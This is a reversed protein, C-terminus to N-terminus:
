RSRLHHPMCQTCVRRLHARVRACRKSALVVDRPTCHAAHALDEITAFPGQQALLQDRLAIVRDRVLVNIHVALFPHQQEITRWNRVSVGVAALAAAQSPFAGRLAWLAAVQAASLGSSVPFSSSCTPACRRM